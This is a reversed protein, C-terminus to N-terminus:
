TQNSYKTVKIELAEIESLELIFFLTFYGTAKAMLCM